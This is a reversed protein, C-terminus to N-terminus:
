CGGCGVIGRVVALAGGMRQRGAHAATRILIEPTREPRRHNWEVSLRIARTVLVAPADSRTQERRSSHMWCSRPLAHPARRTSPTSRGPQISRRPEAAGRRAAAGSEVQRTARARRAHATHTDGVGRGATGASRRAASRRGRRARTRPGRPPPRTPRVIVDWFFYCLTRMAKRPQKETPDASVVVGRAARSVVGTSQSVSKSASASVRVRALGARGGRLRSSWARIM